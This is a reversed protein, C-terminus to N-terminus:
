PGSLDFQQTQLAAPLGASWMPQSSLEARLLVQFNKKSYL